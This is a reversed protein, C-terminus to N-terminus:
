KKQTQVQLTEVRKCKRAALLDQVFQEPNIQPYKKAIVTKVLKQTIGEYDNYSHFGIKRDGFNFKTKTLNTNKLLPVLQKRIAQADCSARQAANYRNMLEKIREMEQAQAQSM